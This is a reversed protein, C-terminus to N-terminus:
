MLVIHFDYWNIKATRREIVMIEIEFVGVPFSVLLVTLFSM